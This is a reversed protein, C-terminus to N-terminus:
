KGKLETQFEVVMSRTEIMIYLNFYNFINIINVPFMLSTQLRGNLEETWNGMTGKMEEKLVKM